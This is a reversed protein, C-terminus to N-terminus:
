FGTPGKGDTGGTHFYESVVGLAYSIGAVWAGGVIIREGVNMRQKKRKKSEKDGSSSKQGSFVTEERRVDINSRFPPGAPEEVRPMDYNVFGTPSVFAAANPVAASRGMMDIPNVYTTGGQTGAKAPRVQRFVLIDGGGSVIEFGEAQLPAFHAFFKTPNSLRLLVETPSLPSALDPVVSTTEAVNVTQMTPDYALIKYVTPEDPQTTKPNRASDASGSLTIGDIEPDRDYYLDSSSELPEQAENKTTPRFRSAVQGPESGYTRRYLPMTRKGGCEDFFSTELGQPDKSYLDAGFVRSLRNGKTAVSRRNLASELRSSKSPRDRTPQSVKKKTASFPFEPYKNEASQVVGRSEQSHPVKFSNDKPTLKIKHFNGTQDFHKAFYRRFQDIDRHLIEAGTRSSRRESFIHREPLKMKPIIKPSDDFYTDVYSIGGDKEKTEYEKLSETVVDRELATTTDLNQLRFAKYKELDGYQQFPRDQDNINDFTTPAYKHLDDYVTSPETASEPEELARYRYEDLDKPEQPDTHVPSIENHMYPGYNQLESQLQDPELSPQPSPDFHSISQPGVSDVVHKSGDSPKELPEDPTATRDNHLDDHDEIPDDLPLHNLSYEENKLISNDFVYSATEPHASSEASDASSRTTAAPWDDFESEAYKRLESAPPKGNTYVPQREQEPNPPNFPTFLSRYTKFTPAPPELNMAVPGHYRKSVKRNTIPDIVYDQGEIPNTESQIIKHSEPTRTNGDVRSRESRMGMERRTKLDQPTRRSSPDIVFPKDSTCFAAVKQSDREGQNVWRAVARKLALRPEEALPNEPWSLKRNIDAYKRRLTRYRRRLERDYAPDLYSSWMGFRFARIQIPRRSEPSFKASFAFVNNATAYVQLPRPRSVTRRSTLM